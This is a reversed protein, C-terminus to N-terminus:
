KWHAKRKSRYNKLMWSVSVGLFELEGMERLFDKAMETDGYDFAAISVQGENRRRSEASDLALAIAWVADYTQPTYRTIPLQLEAFQEEFKANTQLWTSLHSM